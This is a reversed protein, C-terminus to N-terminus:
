LWRRWRLGTGRHAVGARGCGPLGARGALDWSCLLCHSFGVRQLLLVPQASGQRALFGLCLCLGPLSIGLGRLGWTFPQIGVRRDPLPVTSPRLAGTQEVHIATGAPGRLFGRGVNLFNIKLVTKDRTPITVRPKRGSIWDEDCRQARRGITALIARVAGPGASSDQILVGGHAGGTSRTEAKM